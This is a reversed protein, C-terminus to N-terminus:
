FSYSLDIAFLTHRSDYQRETRSRDNDFNALVGAQWRPRFNWSLFFLLSNINRDINLFDETSAEPYTRIEYAENVSLFFGNARILEVGFTVGHSYYDQEISYIIEGAASVPKLQIIDRDYVRLLYLYGLSIQLDPFLRYQLQPNVTTHLFDLSTDNPVKYQRLTFDGELRLGVWDNLGLRLDARAYEEQHTRQYVSHCTDGATDNAYIRNRWINELFISSYAATSQFVSADVRHELYDFSPCLNHTRVIYSYRSDLRTTYGPNFVAGLGAQNQVYNPSFESQDRYRQLRLEDAVELRFNKAVEVAARASTRNQWYQLNLDRHYRTGELRNEFRWYSRGGLSQQGTFELEGSYYDRGYKLMAYGNVGWERSAQTAVSTRPRNSTLPIGADRNLRIRLGFFPDGGEYSNSSQVNAYAVEFEQQWLDVGFVVERQWEWMPRSSIAPVSSTGIANPDLAAMKKTDYSATLELATDLIIQATVYDHQGAFEDAQSQFELLQSFFAVSITDQHARLWRILRLRGIEYTTVESWALLSSDPMAKRTEDTPHQRAFLVDDNAFAGLGISLALIGQLIIRGRQTPRAKLDLDNCWRNARCFLFFKFIRIGFLSIM